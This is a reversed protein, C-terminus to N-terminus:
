SIVRPNDPSFCIALVILAVDEVVEPEEDGDPEDLPAPEVDSPNDDGDDEEGDV